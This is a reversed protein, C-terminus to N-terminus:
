HQQCNSLAQHRSSNYQRQWNKVVATVEAHGRRRGGEGMRTSFEDKKGRGCFFVKGKNNMPFRLVCLKNTSYLLTKKKIYFSQCIVVAKPSIPWRLSSTSLRHPEFRCLTCEIIPSAAEFPVQTSDKLGERHRENSGTWAKFECTSGAQKARMKFDCRYMFMCVWEFANQSKNHWMTFKFNMGNTWSKLKFTCFRILHLTSYTVINRISTHTHSHTYICVCVSLYM